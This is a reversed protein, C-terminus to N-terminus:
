ALSDGEKIDLPSILQSFHANTLHMYICTSHISKHGLLIQITRLDVGCDLMHTAFCHRLTHITIRKINDKPFLKHYAEKFKLLVYQPNMPRGDDRKNPFLYPGSPKYAKYYERLVSLSYASLISYRQKEGKGNSVFVCMNDSDIDCIRVSLAESIRLGSGYCLSLIARHKLSLTEFVIPIRKAPILDPLKLVVKRRPLEYGSIHNGLICQHFFKYASRCVNITQSERRLDTHLHHLYIKMDAITVDAIDKSFYESIRRLHSRYNKFTLYSLGRLDIERKLVKDYKFPIPHFM